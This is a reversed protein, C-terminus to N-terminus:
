KRGFRQKKRINKKPKYSGALAGLICFIASASHLLVHQWLGYGASPTNVLCLSLILSVVGWIAATVCGCAIPSGGNKKFAIFGGLFNAPFLALMSLSTILSLPDAAKTAILCAILLLVFGIGLTMTAGIISSFLVRKLPSEDNNSHKNTTHSLKKRPIPLGGKKIQSDNYM